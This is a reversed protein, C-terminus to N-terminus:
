TVLFRVESQARYTVRGFGTSDPFTVLLTLRYKWLYPDTIGVSGGPPRGQYASGVLEITADEVVCMGTAGPPLVDAALTILQNAAPNSAWAATAPFNESKLLNASRKWAIAQQYKNAFLRAECYRLLSEATTQGSVARGWNAALREDVTGRRVQTVVLMTVVMMVVLVIPLVVGRQKASTSSPTM